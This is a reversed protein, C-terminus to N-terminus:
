SGACARSGTWALALDDGLAGLASEWSGDKGQRYVRSGPYWPSSAGDLGMRWDPPFPELIRCPKGLAIRMHMHTNPVCVYEDLLALIGLTPKLQTTWGSLDCISLGTERRVEDLEEGKVHRQVAVVTGRFGRLQALLDELPAAKFLPLWDDSQGPSQETGARWTLGFRPPTGCSELLERARSVSAEDPLFALPPPIGGDSWFQLAYPLDGALLAYDAAVTQGSRTLVADACGSAELLEAVKAGCRFTVRAGRSKLGSLFRAYFLDDGIGTRESLVLIERGKLDRPLAGRFLQYSKRDASFLRNPRATYCKFGQKFEGRALLIQAKHFSAAYAESSGRLSQDFLALARDFEGREQFLRGLGACAEPHDPQLSLAEQYIREAEGPEGLRCHIAAMNNLLNASREGLELCMRYHRLAQQNEGQRAQSLGLQFEAARARSSRGAFLKRM